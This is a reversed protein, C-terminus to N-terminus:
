GRKRAVIAIRLCDPKPKRFTFCDYVQTTEFGAGNLCRRIETLTYGKEAHVEDFREWIRGKRVFFTAKVEATKSKPYYCNKWVWALDATEDAYVQAGWIVKMAEVTNMDFIFYGGPYLARATSRFCATLDSETLLYNLSDFYCTVLDVPQSLSFATLPQRSFTIKLKNERAKRRAVALMHGSGDIGFTVTNRAAWKLAATGTGCALDLVAKPHYGLRTLLRETYAFMRASFRDSGMKDYVDAFREYASM